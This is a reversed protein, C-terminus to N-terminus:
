KKDLIGNKINRDDSQLYLMCCWFCNNDSNRVPMVSKRSLIDNLKEDEVYCGGSPTDIFGYEISTKNISTDQYNTSVGEIKDILTDIMNFIDKENFTGSNIHKEVGDANAVMRAYLKFKKSKSQRVNLAQKLSAYILKRLKAQTGVYKATTKIKEVKGSM